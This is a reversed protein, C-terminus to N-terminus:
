AHGVAVRGLIMRKSEFYTLFRLYTSLQMAYETLTLYNTKLSCRRSQLPFSVRSTKEDCSSWDGDESESTETFGLISVLFVVTNEHALSSTKTERKRRQSM